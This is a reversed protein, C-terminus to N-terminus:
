LSGKSPRQGSKKNSGSSSSGSSSKHQSSASSPRQSKGDKQQVRDHKELTTAHPTSPVIKPRPHHLPPYGTSLQASSYKRDCAASSQPTVEVTNIIPLAETSGANTPTWSYYATTDARDSTNIAPLSSNSNNIATYRAYNAPPLMGTTLSPLASTTATYYSPQTAATSAQILGDNGSSVFMATSMPASDHNLAPLTAATGNLGRTVPPLMMSAEALDHISPQRRETGDVAWSASNGRSYPGNISLGALRASIPSRVDNDPTIPTSVFNPAPLRRELPLPLSHQLNSMNLPSLPENSDSSIRSTPTSYDYSAPSEQQYFSVGTSSRSGTTWSRSDDSVAYTPADIEYSYAPLSTQAYGSRGYASVSCSRDDTPYAPYGNGSPSVPSYPSAPGLSSPGGVSTDLDFTQNTGVAISTRKKASGQDSDDGVDHIPTTLVYSRSENRPDPRTSYASYPVGRDVTHLHGRSPRREPRQMGDYDYHSKQYIQAM